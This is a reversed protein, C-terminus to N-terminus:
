FYSRLFHYLIKMVLKLTVQPSDFVGVFKLMRFYGKSLRLARSKRNTPASIRDNHSTYYKRLVIDSIVISGYMKALKVYSLGEHGRLDEDYPYLMFLERRVVPLCEGGTGSLILNKYDVSRESDQLFGYQRNSEDCSRFMVVPANSNHILSRLLEGLGDCLFEDDSDLFMVWDNNAIMAGANKAGCVGSNESLKVLNISNNISYIYEEVILVSNDSSCDDVVIVEAGVVDKFCLTSDLCRRICWARNFVTIVISIM